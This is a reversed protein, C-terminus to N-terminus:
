ACCPEYPKPAGAWAYRMHAHCAIITEHGHGAAGGVVPTVLVRSPVPCLRYTRDRRSKQIQARNKRFDTHKRTMLWGKKVRLPCCFTSYVALNTIASSFSQDESPAAIRIEWLARILTGIIRRIFSLLTLSGKRGRLPVEMFELM